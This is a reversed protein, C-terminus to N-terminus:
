GRLLNISLPERHFRATLMCTSHEPSARLWVPGTLGAPGPRPRRGPNAAGGTGGLVSASRSCERWRHRRAVSASRSCRGLTGARGGEPASSYSRRLRGDPAGFGRRLRGEPAGFGRRLWGGPARFGPALGDTTGADRFLCCVCTRLHAGRRRLLIWVCFAPPAAWRKFWTDCGPPSIWPFGNVYM